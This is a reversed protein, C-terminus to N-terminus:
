VQVCVAPGATVSLSTCALAGVNVAGSPRVFVATVKWSETESPVLEVVSETVISM